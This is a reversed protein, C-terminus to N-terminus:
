TPDGVLAPIETWDKGAGVICSLGNSRTVVLTWDGRGGLFLEVVAQRGLGIGAGIPTTIDPIARANVGRVSSLARSQLAM